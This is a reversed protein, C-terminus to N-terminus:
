LCSVCSKIQGEKRWRGKWVTYRAEVTRVRVREREGELGDKM